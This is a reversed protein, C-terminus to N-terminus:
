KIEEKGDAHKAFRGLGRENVPNANKWPWGGFQTRQYDSIAQQIEQNTNMVFPGYKAVPESIPKGQLFLFYAIESGANFEIDETNKLTVSHYNSINEGDLEITSGKYFFLTRNVNGGAKPLVWNAGAEMKITWIRVENDTDNAWSNPTPKLPKTTLYNGAIITIDTQLGKDDFHKEIPIDEHWLMKYHPEVMKDKKPLNLWVQFIELPNPTDNNVLPFMEAHQVGKGATMWQADGFGFRGVAGLSDSHDVFGETAITVTEFGRHPHYPFGPITKGHYMRFGDKITFDEGLRRGPLFESPVGMEDNGIPYLDRHHACFLFPDQTEWPFGLPQIQIINKSM